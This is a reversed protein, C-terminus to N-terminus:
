LRTAIIVNRQVKPYKLFWDYTGNAGAARTEAKALVANGYVHM